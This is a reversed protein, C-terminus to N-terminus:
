HLYQYKNLLPLSFKYCILALPNPNPNLIGNSTVINNKSYHYMIYIAVAVLKILVDWM